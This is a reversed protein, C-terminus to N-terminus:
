SAYVGTLTSPTTTHARVKMAPHVVPAFMFGIGTTDICRELEGPTMEVNIGLAELV